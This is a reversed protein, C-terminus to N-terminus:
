GCIPERAEANKQRSHGPVFPHQQSAADTRLAQLQGEPRELPSERNYHPDIQLNLNPAM